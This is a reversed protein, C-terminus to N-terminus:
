RRSAPVMRKQEDAPWKARRAYGDADVAVRKVNPSSQGFAGESHPPIPMPFDYIRIKLLLIIEHPPRSLGLCIPAAPSNPNKSSAFKTQSSPVAVPPTATPLDGAGDRPSGLKHWRKNSTDGAHRLSPTSTIATVFRLRAPGTAFARASRGQVIDIM